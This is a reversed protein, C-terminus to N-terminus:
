NPAIPPAAMKMPKIIADLAERVGQDVAEPHAGDFFDPNPNVTTNETL